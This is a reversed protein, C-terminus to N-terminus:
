IIDIIFSLFVQYTGVTVYNNAWIENARGNHMRMSKPLGNDIDLLTVYINPDYIRTLGDIKFIYNDIPLTETVDFFGQLFGIKGIRSATM